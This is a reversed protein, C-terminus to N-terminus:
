KEAHDVDCELPSLLKMRYFVCVQVAGAPGGGVHLLLFRQGGPRPAKGLLGPGGFHALGANAAGVQPPDPRVHGINQSTARGDSTTTFLM